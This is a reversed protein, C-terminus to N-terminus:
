APQRPATVPTKIPTGMPPQVGFLPVHEPLVNVEQPGVYKSMGDDMARMTLNEVGVHSLPVRLLM